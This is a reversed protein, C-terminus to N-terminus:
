TREPRAVPQRQIGPPVLVGPERRDGVELEVGLEDVVGLEPHSERLVDDGPM